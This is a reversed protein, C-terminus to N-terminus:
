DTGVGTYPIVDLLKPVNYRIRPVLPESFVLASVGLDVVSQAGPEAVFQAVHHLVLHAVFHVLRVVFHVVDLPADFYDVLCSLKKGCM